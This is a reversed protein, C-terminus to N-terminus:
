LFPCTDLQSKIDKATDVIYHAKELVEFHLKQELYHAFIADSPDNTRKELRERVLHEDCVVRVIFSPVRAKHAIAEAADRLHQRGFTGDLVVSYRPLLEKTREFLVGYVREKEKEHYTPVPFLEKRLVDTRLHVFGERKALQSAVTSKGVGSFVCIIILM